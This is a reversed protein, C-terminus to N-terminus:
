EEHEPLLYTQEYRKISGLLKEPSYGSPLQEKGMQIMESFRNKIMKTYKLLKDRDVKMKDQPTDPQYYGFVITGDKAEKKTNVLYYAGIANFDKLFVDFNEENYKGDGNIKGENVLYEWFFGAQSRWNHIVDMVYRYHSRDEYNLGISEFLKRTPFFHAHNAKTHKRIFNAVVAEVYKRDLKKVDTM